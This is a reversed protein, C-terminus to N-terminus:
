TLFHPSTEVLFCRFDIFMSATNQDSHQKWTEDIESIKRGSGTVKGGREPPIRENGFVQIM